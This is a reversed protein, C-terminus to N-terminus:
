FFYSVNLIKLTSELFHFCNPVSGIQLSLDSSVVQSFAKQLLMDNGQCHRVIDYFTNSLLFNCKCNNYEYSMFNLVIPIKRSIKDRKLKEIPIVNRLLAENKNPEDPRHQNYGDRFKLILERIPAFSTKSSCSSCRKTKRCLYAICKKHYEHKQKETLADYIYQRFKEDNFTMLTCNAYRPLDRTSEFIEVTKCNCYDGVKEFSCFIIKLKFLKAIIKSIMRLDGKPLLYNLQMRSFKVGIVSACKCIMQDSSSLTDYVLLKNSKYSDYLDKESLLGDIIAVDIMEENKQSSNIIPQLDFFNGGKTNTSMNGIIMGSNMARFFSIRKIKLIGSYLLTKACVELWRPNGNSNKQIFREFDITIASVNISQCAIDKHFTKDIPLLNYQTIFKTAIFKGHQLLWKKNNKGISLVLCVKQSDMISNILVLSKLDILDADDILLVWYNKLKSGLIAIMKRQIANMQEDNQEVEARIEDVKVKLIENLLFLYQQINHEEFIKKIVNLYKDITSYEVDITKLLFRRLTWFPKSFHKTKPKLLICNTGKQIVSALLHNLIKSKGEGSEGTIIFCQKNDQINDNANNSNQIAASIDKLIQKILDDRGYLIENENLNIYSFGDNNESYKYVSLAESIGKLKKMPLLKFYDLSLKSAMLTEQDCSVMDKYAVMLRAARNVTVSIVSYERRLAHGVVGCYSKGTTVGISVTTIEKWRSLTEFLEQACRLGIESDNEHQFGKLGFINLFM